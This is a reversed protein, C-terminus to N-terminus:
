AALGLRQSLEDPNYRAEGSAITRIGWGCFSSSGMLAKTVPDAREPLAIGAFLAHGANSAHVRCPKKDGDLALVYTGLEEDFFHKDFRERIAEAKARYGEARQPEGFRRSIGEAARWAAYVYAQVEALAIPGRALSGDAHFIADHSDKWGQNVLGQATRRGYEVFGDGDRDGYTEIWKLAAEINPWLRRCTEVDDTRTLYEGALMVFLPTADVSGYYLRFPVEGLIAMEGHRAEHLIKGPEADAAPDVQTAQSAALHSLVGRAITPDLWLMMMATIIGDRGFVTSYWPIGAYPYPGEPLETMLMYLDAVARRAAENFVDNSSDIAAARRAKGHLERRADRLSTFYARIPRVPSDGQQCDIELFLSRTEKPALTLEFMAQNGTLEDPAPDFRLTTLRRREDLGEYSLTVQGNRVKPEGLEGRKARAMGRVEFLDAFDAAFVVGLRLSHTRDDFNRICIREFCGAKWLFRTRRVHILDHEVIVRGEDDFMDPNALDCTLTANDDRLTSSLVMPRRGDLMISLHSLHRTDRFYLGQTGGQSALADGKTDFVGFSDGYKLVLPRLESLSSSASVVFAEYDSAKQNGAGENRAPPSKKAAKGHVNM